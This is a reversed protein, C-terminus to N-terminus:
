NLDLVINIGDLNKTIAGIPHINIPLESSQNLIFQILEPNDIIPDTDPMVCVKSYGGSLAANSGSLLTEQDGIGPSRFHSNIDIFAQTVIKKNCDIVLYSDNDEIKGIQSIKGNEIVIDKISSKGNLINLIKGNKLLLKSSSINKIKKNM